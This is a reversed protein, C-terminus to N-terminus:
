SDSAALGVEAFTRSCPSGFTVAVAGVPLPLSLFRQLIDYIIAIHFYITSIFEGARQGPVRYSDRAPPQPCSLGIVLRHCGAVESQVM